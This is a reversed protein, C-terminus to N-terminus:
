KEVRYYVRRRPSSEEKCIKFLGLITYTRRYGRDDVAVAIKHSSAPIEVFKKGVYEETIQNDFFRNRWGDVEGYFRVMWVEINESYQWSGKMWKEYNTGFIENLFEAHTSIQYTNGVIKYLKTVASQIEASSPNKASIKISSAMEQKQLEKSANEQQMKHNYDDIIQSIPDKVDHDLVQIYVGFCQPFQFKIEKTAFKVTVYREDCLIIEGEGYLNHKVKTGVLNM